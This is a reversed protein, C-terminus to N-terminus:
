HGILRIQIQIYLKRYLLRKVQYRRFLFVNLRHFKNQEIFNGRFDGHEKGEVCIVLTVIRFAVLLHKHEFIPFM